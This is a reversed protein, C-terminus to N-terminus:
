FSSTKADITITAGADLPKVAISFLSLVAAILPIKRSFLTVATL